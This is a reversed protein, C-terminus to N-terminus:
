KPFTETFITYVLADNLFDEKAKAMVSSHCIQIEEISYVLLGGRFNILGLMIEYLRAENHQSLFERVDKSLVLKGVYIYCGIRMHM